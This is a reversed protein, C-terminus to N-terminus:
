PLLGIPTGCSPHSRSTPTPRRSPLSREDSPLTMWMSMAVGSSPWFRLRRCNRTLVSAVSQNRRCRGSSRAGSRTAHFANRVVSLVDRRTARSAATPRCKSPPRTNSRATCVSPERCASSSSANAHSLKGAAIGAAAVVVCGVLRGANRRDVADRAGAADPARGGRAPAAAPVVRSSSSDPLSGHPSRHAPRSRAPAAAAITRHTRRRNRRVM